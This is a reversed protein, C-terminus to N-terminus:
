TLRRPSYKDASAHSAADPASDSKDDVVDDDTNQHSYLVASEGPSRSSTIPPPLEHPTLIYPTYHIGTLNLHIFKSNNVIFHCFITNGNPLDLHVCINQNFLKSCM